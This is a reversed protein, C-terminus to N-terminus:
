RKSRRKTIRRDIEATVKGRPGTSKFIEAIRQLEVGSELLRRLSTEIKSLEALIEDDSVVEMRDAEQGLGTQLDIPGTRTSVDFAQGEWRRCSLDYLTKRAEATLGPQLDGDEVEVGTGGFASCVKPTAKDGESPGDIIDATSWFQHGPWDGVVEVGRDTILVVRGIQGTKKHTVLSRIQLM